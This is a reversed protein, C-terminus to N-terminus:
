KLFLDAVRLVLERPSSENRNTLIVVALREEPFRVMANRFGMTEGTHGATRRGRHEAVRWGFGYHVEQDST